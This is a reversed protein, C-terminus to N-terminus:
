KIIYESTYAKYFVRVIDGKRYKRLDIELANQQYVDILGYDKLFGDPKSIHYYLYEKQGIKSNTYDLIKVSLNQNKIQFRFTAILPESKKKTFYSAKPIGYGHAYDYYPYLNGSKQIEDFLQQTTYEPHMELVCAAFGAVLPSAFSTGQAIEAGKKSIVVAEGMASVNPKMRGDATPGYSSFPIHYDTYPDIGGVSLVHSADAPAGIYKWYKLEGENGTANVVLIGKDFAMNAARSILSTGDMQERFYREVGYGLSSNIIDAGNKDAWEVAALWYEEEALPETNVETKALLFESSTALGLEEDEYIGAIDSLVMTGHTNSYYVFDKNKTFDYTSIIRNNKRIHVFASDIDVKPFGGDFIAIRIGKGDIKLPRFLQGELSTIQKNRINWFDNSLNHNSSIYYEALKPVLNIPQINKVFSLNLIESLQSSAAWVVVANFWRSQFGVSDAITSIQCVYKQNLPYDSIDNLPINNKIRRSIAKQDFYSEPNFSTNDKDTLFVWYKQQAFLSLNILVLLIVLLQNKNNMM